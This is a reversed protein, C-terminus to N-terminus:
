TYERDGRRAQNKIVGRSAITAGNDHEIIEDNRHHYRSKAFPIDHCRISLANWENTDRRIAVLFPVQVQIV